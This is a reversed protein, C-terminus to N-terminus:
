SATLPRRRQWRIFRYLYVGLNLACVAVGCLAVLEFSLNPYVIEQLYHALFGGRMQATGEMAKLSDEAMTLPCPWTGLEVIIGWVLSAIHLATLWPRGRTFYAGIIVFVIWALHIALVM